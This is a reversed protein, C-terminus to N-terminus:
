QKENILKNVPIFGVHIKGRNEGPPVYILTPTARVGNKVLQVEVKKITEIVKKQDNTIEKEKKLKKELNEAYKLFDGNGM